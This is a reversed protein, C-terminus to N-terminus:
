MHWLVMDIRFGAALARIYLDVAIISILSIWAFSKHYNNLFSQANYVKRNARGALTCENLVFANLIHRNLHM